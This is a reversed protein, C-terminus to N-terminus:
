RLLECGVGTVNSFKMKVLKRSERISDRIYFCFSVMVASITIGLLFLSKM